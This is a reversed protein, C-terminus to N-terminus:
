DKIMIIREDSFLWFFSGIYLCYFAYSFVVIQLLFPFDGQFLMQMSAILILVLYRAYMLIKSMIEVRDVMFDRILYPIALGAVGIVASYWLHFAMTMVAGAAVAVLISIILYVTNRKSQSFIHKMRANM